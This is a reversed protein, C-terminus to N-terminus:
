SDTRHDERLLADIEEPTELEMEEFLDAIARILDEDTEITRQKKM